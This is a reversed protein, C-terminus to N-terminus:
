SAKAEDAIILKGSRVLNDTEARLARAHRSKTKAESELRQINELRDEYTMEMRPIYVEIGDRMVPYRPQLEFFNGQSNNEAEEEHFKYRERCISRGMQRIHMLASYRVLLPSRSSPDIKKYVTEALSAPDIPIAVSRNLREYEHRIMDSIKEHENNM